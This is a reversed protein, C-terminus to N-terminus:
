GFRVCIAGGFWAPMIPRRYDLLVVLVGSLILEIVDRARAFSSKDEGLPNTKRGSILFWENDKIHRTKGKM